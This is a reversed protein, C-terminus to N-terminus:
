INEVLSADDTAEFGEKQATYAAARYIEDRFVQPTQVLWIRDRPISELVTVGEAYKISDTSPTAAIAAGHAYASMIVEKIQEPTILARAADHIAVYDSRENMADFGNKASEQRTKGGVVTKALKSIGYEAKFNEYEECEEARAVVIIENVYECKEFALLTHVVLPKSDLVTMQKTKDTGMRSGSGGALIVASVFPKKGIAAYMIEKAKNFIESM